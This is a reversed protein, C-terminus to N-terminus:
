ETKNKLSKVAKIIANRKIVLIVATIIIVSYRIVPFNYLLMVCASAIILLLAIGSIIYPNYVKKNDLNERCVRRMFLYHCLAYLIYCVLTTYGAAIFGFKKIFILNLVVNLLAGSLSALMVYHTKEFYYEFTAFLDYLFMFYVSVTVPPIVWMAVQYSAPALIHLIEPALAVVLFNCVAIIGLIAYSTKGIKDTKNDRISKYIWPNMSSSISINLIQLVMAMTYAVSYFAAESDSCMQAIMIRDSQGLVVQSLYHPVLPLNFKLAYLWYKKSFFQKGSKQIIVFLGFFLILNVLATSIVRAEMQNQNSVSLVFVLSVTPRLIVYTLTLAVLKKYRYKERERNSWFQFVAHAWIDILLASMILTPFGIFNNLPKQFIFYLLAWAAIITTSLGLMSSSFVPQDDKNKVLGRTYVGAALNLSIIIQLISFWSNYTAFQGYETETMVRTFVPTTLMSIGKQLFGCLTFWLSAKVPSNLKNYYVKLKELM